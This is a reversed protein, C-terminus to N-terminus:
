GAKRRLVVLKKARRLNARVDEELQDQRERVWPAYHERCVKETNGLIAAVRDMPVGDKLLEVARTDRFRHAHGEPMNLGVFLKRIQRRWDGTRTEVKGGGHGFYYGGPAGIERLAEIVEDPVPVRVHEGTKHQYLSITDGEIQEPRLMVADSIRLASWRLVLVLARFRKAWRVREGAKGEVHKDLAESIAALESATFPLTPAHDETAAKLAKAPNKAMWGSEVCFNFFGRLRELMKNATIASVQWSARFERVEPVTQQSLLPLGRAETWDGLRDFLQRYKKRTALSTKLAALEGMHANMADIVTRIRNPDEGNEWAAIIEAARELSTTKLSQRLERGGIVQHVWVPCKCRSHARNRQGGKCDKKHRRYLM